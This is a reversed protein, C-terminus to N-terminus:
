KIVNGSEFLSPFQFYMEVHFWFEHLDFEYRALFSLSPELVFYLLFMGAILYSRSLSELM